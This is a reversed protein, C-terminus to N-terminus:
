KTVLTQVAACVAQSSLQDEGTSDRANSAMAAGKMLKTLQAKPNPLQLESLLKVSADRVAVLKSTLQVQVLILKRIEAEWAIMSQLSTKMSALQEAVQMVAALNGAADSSAAPLVPKALPKLPAALNQIELWMESMVETLRDKVSSLAACKEEIDQEARQAGMQIAQLLPILLVPPSTNEASLAACLVKLRESAVEVEKKMCALRTQADVVAREKALKRSKQMYELVESRDEEPLGLEEWVAFLQATYSDPGPQLSGRAERETLMTIRRVEETHDGKSIMGGVYTWISTEKRKLDRILAEKDQLDEKLTDESNLSIHLEKKLEHARLIAIRIATDERAALLAAEEASLISNKSANSVQM